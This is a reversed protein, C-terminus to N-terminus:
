RTDLARFTSSLSTHPRIECFSGISSFYLVLVPVPNNESVAKDTLMVLGLKAPRLVLSRMYWAAAAPYSPRSPCTVRAPQPFVQDLLGPLSFRSKKEPFTFRNPRALAFPSETELRIDLLISQYRNELETPGSLIWCIKRKIHRLEHFSCAGTPLGRLKNSYVGNSSNHHGRGDKGHEGKKM